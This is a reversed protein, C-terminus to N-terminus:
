VSLSGSASSETPTSAHLTRWEPFDRGLLASLERTEALQIPRLWDAARTTDVAAADKKRESLWRGAARVPEPILPRIRNWNSWHRMRRLFALGHASVVEEGTINRRGLDPPVHGADVGLWLFLERLFGPTDDRMAETTVVKVRDRGFAELFPRIQMAYHSVERYHAEKQVARLVDRQEQHYKANHWYHSLTREIPDRMLYLIRAEPNYRAIREAM